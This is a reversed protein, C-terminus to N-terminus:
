VIDRDTQETNESKIRLRVQSFSGLLPTLILSFGFHLLSFTERRGPLMWLLSNPVETDRFDPHWSESFHVLIRDLRLWVITTHKFTCIWNFSLIHGGPTPKTESEWRTHALTHPHVQARLSVSWDSKVASGSCCRLHPSASATNGCLVRPRRSRAPPRPQHAEERRLLKEGPSAGPQCGIFNQREWRRAAFPGNKVPIAAKLRIVMGRSSKNKPAASFMHAQWEIMNQRYISKLFLFITRGCECISTGQDVSM